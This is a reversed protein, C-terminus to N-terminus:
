GPHKALEMHLTSVLRQIRKHLSCIRTDVGDIEKVTDAVAQLILVFDLDKTIEHEGFENSKVGVLCATLNVHDHVSVARNECELELVSCDFLLNLFQVLGIFPNQLDRQQQM